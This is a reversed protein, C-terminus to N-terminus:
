NSEHYNKIIRDVLDEIEQKTLPSGKEKQKRATEAIVHKRLSETAMNNLLNNWDKSNM